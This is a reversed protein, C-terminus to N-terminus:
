SAMWPSPGSAASAASVFRVSHPTLSRPTRVDDFAVWETTCAARTFSLAGYGRHTLDCWALNENAGRWLAERQGTTAQSLAREFGPSAVSGGAFEVAALRGGGGSALNNLWCNHSDGGLLIANNAHAACAELLRARAAPYGGWADLNWPLGFRGRQESEGIWRRTGASADPPLLQTAGSPYIQEAVVLQQAVIQWVQGRQKSQELAAAFWREQAPGLLTRRPDDLVARRFQAVASAADAGDVLQRDLSSRYDLPEDRGIYRTDLLVIRALAGWDLTRYIRATRSEPRRIPMWDFYAKSAAAIRDLWAGESALQHNQAGDRWTDNAIEHDDWVTAMPKRRRLELLDPDTHYIAYRQYYDTLRVTEGPPDLTRGAISETESPYTGRGYEYIYDGTHIVLDIDDRRAAHGYAHFYGFPYNSCSFVAIKLSAVDGSPATRTEGMLSTGSGSLFRYYYSRGPSLNRVDVKACYDNHPNAHALGRAAVRAFTEDESLEWAIQGNGGVFRTWLVISEATPDGSAVGHTFVGRALSQAWAPRALSAAAGAVLLGRRAILM